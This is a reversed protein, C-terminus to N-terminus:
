VTSDRGRQPIKGYEDFLGVLTRVLDFYEDPDVPKEFYANAGHRYATAVDHEAESGSIIIVPTTRHEPDSNLEQLVDEGREKPLNLDLFLLDPPTASEYEGRQDFYDLAEEGDRVVTLSVDVDAEAVGKRVLTSDGPNDEALLVEIVDEDSRSM